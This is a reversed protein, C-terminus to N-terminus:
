SGRACSYDNISDGSDLDCCPGSSLNVGDQQLIPDDYIELIIQRRCNTDGDNIFRWLGEDMKNRKQNSTKRRKRSGPQEQVAEELVVERPGRFSEEYYLICLGQIDPNRACRGFRQVLFDFDGMSGIGWQIVREVNPIDMGVGFAETAILIRTRGELFHHFTIDKMSTSLNSYFVAIAIEAKSRVDFIHRDPTGKLPLVPRKKLDSHVRSQLHQAIELLVAKSNVFLITMPITEVDKVNEVVLWELDKYTKSEGRQIMVAAYFLNPRNCTERHALQSGSINAEEVYYM